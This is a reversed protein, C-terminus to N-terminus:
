FSHFLERMLVPCRPPRGPGPSSVKQQKSVEAPSTESASGNLCPCM